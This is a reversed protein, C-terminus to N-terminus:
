RPQGKASWGWREMIRRDRASEARISDKPLQRLCDALAQPDLPEGSAAAEAMPPVQDSRGDWAFRNGYAPREPECDHRYLPPDDQAFPTFAITREFILPKGTPTPPWQPMRQVADRALREAVDSTAWLTQLRTMRGDPAIEVRFRVLGQDPGEVATGMMSRVQQGWTYRYGKSNRLTYSSAFAWEEATPPPPAAQTAPAAAARQDALEASQPPQLPQPLVPPVPAVWRPAPLPELVAAEALTELRLPQAEVNLLTIVAEPRPLRGQLPPGEAAFLAWILGHLTVVWAGVLVRRGPVRFSGANMGTPLLLPVSRSACTLLGKLPHAM